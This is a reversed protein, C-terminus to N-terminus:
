PGIKPSFEGTKTDIYGRGANQLYTGKSDILDKGVRTYEGTRPDIPGRSPPPPPPTSHWGGKNQQQTENSDPTQIVQTGEESGYIKFEGAHASPSAVLSFLAIMAIPSIRVRNM